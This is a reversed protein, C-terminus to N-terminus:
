TGREEFPTERIDDPSSSLVIDQTVNSVASLTSDKASSIRQYPCLRLVRKRFVVKLPPCGFLYMLPYVCFQYWRSHLYFAGFLSMQVM